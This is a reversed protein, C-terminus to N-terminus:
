RPAVVLRAAAENVFTVTKAEDVTLTARADNWGLSPDFFGHAIPWQGFVKLASEVQRTVRGDDDLSIAVVQRVFLGDDGPYAAAGPAGAIDAPVAGGGAALATRRLLRRVAPGSPAGLRRARRRLLRLCARGRRAVTRSPM